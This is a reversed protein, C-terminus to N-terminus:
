IARSVIGVVRRMRNRAYQLVFSTIFHVRIGVPTGARGAVLSRDRSTVLCEEGKRRGKLYADRNMRNSMM